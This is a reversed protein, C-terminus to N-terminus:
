SRTELDKSSLAQISKIPDPRYPSVPFKPVQSNDTWIRSVKNYLFALLCDRTIIPSRTSGRSDVIHGRISRSVKVTLVGEYKEAQLFIKGMGASLQQRQVFMRFLLHNFKIGLLILM